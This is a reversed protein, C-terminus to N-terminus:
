LEVVEEEDDLEEREAEIHDGFWRNRIRELVDRTAEVISKRDPAPGGVTRVTSDTALRVLIDRLCDKRAEQLVTYAASCGPTSREDSDDVHEPFCLTRSRKRTKCRADTRAATVVALSLQPRPLRPRSKILQDRSLHEQQMWESTAAKFARGNYLGYRGADVEMGLLRGAVVRDVGIPALAGALRLKWAFEDRRQAESAAADSALEAVRREYDEHAPDVLVLGAVEEPFLSAYVRAVNAGAGRAVLLFPGIEDAGKLTQQLTEASRGASQPLPGSDSWGYGPRDYWCARLTSNALASAVPDWQDRASELVDSEFVVTPNPPGRSGSSGGGGQCRLHVRHAGNRVSVLIGPPPDHFLWLARQAGNSVMLVAAVFSTALVPAVVLWQVALSVAPRAASARKSAAESNGWWLAAAVFYVIARSAAVGEGAVGLSVVLAVAALMHAIPLWSPAVAVVPYWKPSAALCSSTATILSLLLDVCLPLTISSRTSHILISPTGLIEVPSRQQQQQQNDLPSQGSLFERSGLSDSGDQVPLDALFALTALIISHALCFAATLLAVNHWATRGAVGVGSSPSANAEAGNGGKPRTRGM